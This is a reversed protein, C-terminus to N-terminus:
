GASGPQSTVEAAGRSRIAARTAARDYAAFLAQESREWGLEELVRERGIAGM